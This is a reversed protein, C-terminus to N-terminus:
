SARERSTTKKDFPNSKVEPILELLGLDLDLKRLIRILTLLHTGKGNELLSITRVNKGCFEALEQQSINLKLRQAKIRQGVIDLYEKDEYM